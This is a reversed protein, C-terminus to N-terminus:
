SLLTKEIQEVVEIGFLVKFIEESAILFFNKKM